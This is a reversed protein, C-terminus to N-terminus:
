FGYAKPLIRWCATVFLSVLVSVQRQWPIHCHSSFGVLNAASSPGFNFGWRHALPHLRLRCASSAEWSGPVAAVAHTPPTHSCVFRQCWGTVPVLAPCSLQRESAPLSQASNMFEQWVCHPHILPHCVMWLVPLQKGQEKQETTLDGLSLAAFGAECAASSFSPRPWLDSGWWRAVLQVAYVSIYLILAM